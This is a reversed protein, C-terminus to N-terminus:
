RYLYSVSNGKYLTLSEAIQAEVFEEWTLQCGKFTFMCQLDIKRKLQSSCLDNLTLLNCLIHINM